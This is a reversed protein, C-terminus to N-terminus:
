HDEQSLQPIRPFKQFMQDAIKVRQKVLHINRPMSILAILGKIIQKPVSDKISFTGLIDIWCKERVQKETFFRKSLYIDSVSPLIQKLLRKRSAAYTDVRAKHERLGGMPAHHHIVSIDPDLVM